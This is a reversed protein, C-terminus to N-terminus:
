FDHSPYEEFRHASGTIGANNFAADLRGSERDIRRMLASVQAEDAVDVAVAYAIGGAAEIDARSEATNRESRGVCYVTAGRAAFAMAAERGIGSGAGTVLVVKGRFDDTVSCRAM